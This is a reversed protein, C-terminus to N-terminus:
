SLGCGQWTDFILSSSSSLHCEDGASTPLVMHPLGAACVLADPQPAWSCLMPVGRAHSSLEGHVRHLLQWIAVEGRRSLGGARVSDWTMHARRRIHHYPASSVSGPVILVQSVVLDM